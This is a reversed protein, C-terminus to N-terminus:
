KLRKKLEGIIKEHGEKIVINWSKVYDKAKIEKMYDLDKKLRKEGFFKLYIKAHVAHLPIHIKTVKSESKYKKWIHDWSKKAKEMNGKQTFLQHILEHILTDIFYDKDEYTRMTLPDSFPIGYGIVYCIIKDDKWKLGTIKSLETLVKKEVKKWRPTIDDIYDYIKNMSPYQLNHEKLYKKIGPSNRYRKNYIWSNRFEIKPTKM